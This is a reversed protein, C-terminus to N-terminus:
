RPLSTSKVRARHVTSPRLSGLGGEGRHEFGAGGREAKGRAANGVCRRRPRRLRPQFLKEGGAPMALHVPHSVGGIPATMGLGQPRLRFARHHQAQTIRWATIREHQQGVFGFGREADIRRPAIIMLHDLATQLVSPWHSARSVPPATFTNTSVAGSISFGNAAARRGQSAPCACWGQTVPAHTTAAARRSRSRLRRQRWIIRFRIM